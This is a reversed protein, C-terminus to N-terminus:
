TIDNNQTDFLMREPTGSYKYFKIQQLKKFLSHIQLNRNKTLQTKKKM